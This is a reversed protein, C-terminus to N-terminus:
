RPPELLRLAKDRQKQWEKLFDTFGAAGDWPKREGSWHIVVANKACAHAKCNYIIPMCALRSENTENSRNQLVTRFLINELPQSGSGCGFRKGSRLYEAYRQTFRLSPHFIFIGTNWGGALSPKFSGPPPCGGTGMRAIMLEAHPLKRFRSFIETLPGRFLMDVELYLVSRFQTLNWVHMKFFSNTLRQKGKGVEKACYAPGKVPPREIVSAKLKAMDERMEPSAHPTLVVIPRKQDFERISYIATALGLRHSEAGYLMFAYAESQEVADDEAVKPSRLSCCLHLFALICVPLLLKMAM